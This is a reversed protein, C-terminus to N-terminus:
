SYVHDAPDKFPSRVHGRDALSHEGGSKGLGMAAWRHAGCVRSDWSAKTEAQNRFCFSERM